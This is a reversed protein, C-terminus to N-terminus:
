HFHLTSYKCFDAIKVCERFFLKLDYYAQKTKNFNLFLRMSLILKELIINIIKM